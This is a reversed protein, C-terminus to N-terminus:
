VASKKLFNQTGVRKNRGPGRFFAMLNIIFLFLKKYMCRLLFEM